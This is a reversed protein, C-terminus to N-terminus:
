HKNFTAGALFKTMLEIKKLFLVDMPLLSLECQFGALSAVM